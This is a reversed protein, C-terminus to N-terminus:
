KIWTTYRYTALRGVFWVDPVELALQEYRKYLAANEQRPIPYYPDGVDCPYEFTVSTKDHQQSTLYKYETIRTYQETQPYNVVAVPQYQRTNFTRHEFRLSRYPLKGYRHGFYEDVPGTYIVRRHPVQHRVHAFDVGLMVDINPHALMRKFMHTYGQAPMYQYTDTFYRDDRNTRTPVRATVSKDLQAPDVGWQKRTYGRFFKEYLERGVKSVVVDESTRITEVAEARAALWQELEEETLQLNYLTNITDLNIPIPVLMNDVHALVRHEYPRWQTFRSLHTFIALSNTHFIHPGYQHILVGADDLRDYANGGIHPRRDILLVRENRVSAIREALTSGAFGAGVILWDYTTSRQSIAAPARRPAQHGTHAEILQQMAAWTNDWSLPALLADTRALWAIRDQQLLAQARDIFQQATRAIEVVGHEGYPHVVDSIPTSVVPVGAALFEPTKTPSIYRTAENIAFPMIGINWHALYAPLDRYSKAGLWHLNPRQPLSAPDIKVVPGLMVFQWQPQLRAMEDVLALDMREDIVGFFGLRPRALAAQDHPDEVAQRARGFHAKDISSPFAHINRHKHRKAEFLSLGGTFVLECRKFLEDELALLSAPANKFASLEDMNDYIRLQAQLHRSFTLAMPTYYWLIHPQHAHAQVLSDLLVRQAHSIELASLGQPLHPVVTTVGSENLQQQLYPAASADFVPEEFFFVDYTQAARSLLHQPRQYVFNWRL